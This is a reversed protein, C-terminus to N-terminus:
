CGSASSTSAPTSRRADEVRVPAQARREAVRGTQLDTDSPAELGSSDAVYEYEDETGDPEYEAEPEDASPHRASIWHCSTPKREGAGRAGDPETSPKTRRSAWRCRAPTRTSSTSTSTTRSATSRPTSPPRACWRANRRSTTSNRTSTMTSITTRRSGTRIAAIDPRLVDAGRLLRAGRGTNLVRTALAVDSTRRVADRKSILMPVLVFLWLVVLSIWLLSQPISPM